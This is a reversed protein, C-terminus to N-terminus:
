AVKKLPAPKAGAVEVEPQASWQVYVALAFTFVSGLLGAWRWDTLFAVFVCVGALGALGLLNPLLNATWRPITFSITKGAM